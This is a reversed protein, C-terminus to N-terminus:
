SGNVVAEKESIKYTYDIKTATEPTPLVQLPKKM